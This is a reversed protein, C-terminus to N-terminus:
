VGGPCLQQEPREGQGWAKQVLEIQEFTMDINGKGHSTMFIIIWRYYLM